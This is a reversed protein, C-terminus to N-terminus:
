FCPTKADQWAPLEDVYRRLVSGNILTKRGQKVASFKGAKLRDYITEKTVRLMQATEALSFYETPMSSTVKM